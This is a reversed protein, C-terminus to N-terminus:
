TRPPIVLTPGSSLELRLEANAAAGDAGTVERCDGSKSSWSSVMKPAKDLPEGVKVVKKRSILKCTKLDWEYQV